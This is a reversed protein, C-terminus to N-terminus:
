RLQCTDEGAINQFDVNNLTVVNNENYTYVGCGGSDAIISDNITLQTDGQIRSLVIAAVFEEIGGHSSSGANRLEVNSWVNETSNSEVEIGKWHGQADNDGRLIIPSEQTGNMTIFGISEISTDAGFEMEFGENITLLNGDTVKITGPASNLGDKLHFPLTSASWTTDAVINGGAVLITNDSNGELTVEGSVSEIDEANIILGEEASNRVIVDTLSDIQGYANVRIGRGGSEEITVNQIGASGEDGPSRGIGLAAPGSSLFPSSGAHRITVYSLSNEPRTTALSLGKWLGAVESTGRMVIPDSETGEAIIAGNDLFEFGSDPGFAIETGPEITLVAGRVDIVDCEIRYDPSTGQDSLTTDETIDECTFEVTEGGGNNDGTPGCAALLGVLCCVFFIRYLM